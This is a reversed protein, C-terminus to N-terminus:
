GRAGPTRRRAQLGLDLAKVDDCLEISADAKSMILIRVANRRAAPACYGRSQRWNM